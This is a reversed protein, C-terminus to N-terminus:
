IKEEYYKFYVDEPLLAFARDKLYLDTYDLDKTIVCDMEKYKYLLQMIKSEIEKLTDYKILRRLMNKFINEYEEKFQQHENNGNDIIYINEDYVINIIGPIRKKTFSTAGRYFMEPELKYDVALCKM